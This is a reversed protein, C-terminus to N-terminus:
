ALGPVPEALARIADEIKVKISPCPREGTKMRHLPCANGQCAPSFFCSRCGSDSEAGSGVWLEYKARDLNMNGFRDLTGVKNMEDEFAVTCKYVIGDSGIIFSYPRAAYCKSGGPQLKGRIGYSDIGRGVAKRGLEYSLAQGDRESCVDVVHDNPGGWHGVPHFDACFREDGGFEHELLELFPEMELASSRDFNVRLVVRFREDSRKMMRLNGLIRDFTGTKRDGLLRLRDHNDRLGDLTIQFGRVQNRILMAFIEPTMLYGNTTMSSTFRIGFDECIRGLRGAVKDIVDHAVLPEGGFWGLQLHRLEPARRSVYNVVGDMVDPKMKKKQFTQSCYVCRFNCQETPLLILELQDASDEREAECIRAVQGIEDTGEPVLFGNLALEALIGKPKGSIGNRMAGVVAALQEPPEAAVRAYAGMYSNYLALQGDDTTASVHFRSARWRIDGFPDPKSM